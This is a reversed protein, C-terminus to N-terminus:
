YGGGSTANGSEAGAGTGTVGGAVATIIVGNGGTTSSNVPTTTGGAGGNTSTGVSGYSGPFAAPSTFSYAGATWTLFESVGNLGNSNAGPATPGANVIHTIVTGPPTELPYSKICVAAGGGGGGGTSTSFGGGGAAGSGCYTAWIQSTGGPVTWTTATSDCGTSCFSMVHLTPVPGPPLQASAFNVGLFALVLAFGLWLRQM